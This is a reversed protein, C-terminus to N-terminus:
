QLDYVNKAKYQSDLGSQVLLNWKCYKYEGM